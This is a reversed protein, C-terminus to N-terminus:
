KRWPITDGPKRETYTLSQVFLDRGYHIANHTARSTCVLFDPNMLFDSSLEIDSKTIPNMHHICIQRKDFIERDPHALDCSLDRVIVYNRISEWEKSRYFKQNMYRDFGFTDFGVSGNLRLYELREEFTPLLLLENYTKMM